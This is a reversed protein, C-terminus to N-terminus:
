CTRAPVIGSRESGDTSLPLSRAAVAESSFWSAQSPHEATAFAAGHPESCSFALAAGCLPRLSSRPVRFWGMADGDLDRGGGMANASGHDGSDALASTLVSSDLYVSTLSSRSVNGCQYLKYQESQVM